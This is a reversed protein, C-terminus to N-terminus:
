LGFEAAIRRAEALEPQTNVNFFPDFPQDPWSVTAARWREALDQLRPMVPEDLAKGADPLLSTSWLGTLYHAQGRSAAIAAVRGAGALRAVLDAPLFPTDSPVTLVTEFAGAKALSLATHLGALPTAAEPRIDGVTRLGTQRFRGADGNANIALMAAQPKLRSIIRDLMTVCGILEFTKERGMRASRGGAVIVALINM